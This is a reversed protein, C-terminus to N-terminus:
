FEGQEKITIIYYDVGAMSQIAQLEIEMITGAFELENNVILNLDEQARELLDELSLKLSQDSISDFNHGQLNLASEMTLSEFEQNVSIIHGEGSIAMAPAPIIKIINEAELTKDLYNGGAMMDDSDSHSQASAAQSLISNINLVLKDFIPFLFKHNVNFSGTKVADDIANNLYRLPFEVLNYMFFFLILGVALAMTLTQIFLSTTRGEDIALTGMNYLVVAYARIDYSEKRPDYVRIAVSAGVLDDEVMETHSDDRIKRAKHIFPISEYMGELAPPAIISGDDASIILAYEVGEEKEAFKTTLMSIRNQQLANTNITKLSKAISLARRKSEKEISEKSIQIMPVVSLSTVVIIFLLVFIGLIMKMEAMELLKYVGPMMVQNIYYQITQQLNRKEELHINGNKNAQNQPFPSDAQMLESNVGVDNQIHAFQQQHINSQTYAEQAVNGQYNANVQQFEGHEHVLMFQVEAIIDHFGIKDGLQLISQQTKLGNVFTGNSSGMDQVALVNDKVILKSHRKSVGGSKLVIACEPARGIIHEGNELPFTSGSLPGNLIKLTWM